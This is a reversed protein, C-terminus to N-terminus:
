KINLKERTTKCKSMYKPIILSYDVYYEDTYFVCETRTIKLKVM